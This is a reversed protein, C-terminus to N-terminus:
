SFPQECKTIIVTIDDRVNNSDTFQFLSDTLYAKIGDVDQDKCDRVAQELRNFGFVNEDNNTTETVGDTYLVLVDGQSLISKGNEYRAHPFSGLILGGTSLYEIDNNKRCILPPPHGANCYQFLGDRLRLVGYFLTAYRDSATADILMENARIMVDSPIMLPDTAYEHFATYLSAMTIAGPIGKGVVDGAAIGIYKDALTFIDYFDGGIERSPESIISMSLGVVRPITRPLLARQIEGALEMEEELRKSKKLIKDIAKEHNIMKLYIMSFNKTLVYCLDLDEQVLDIESFIITLVRYKSELFVPIICASKASSIESIKVFGLWTEQTLDSLIKTSQFQKGRIMDQIDDPSIKLPPDPQKHQDFVMENTTSNLIFSHYSVLHFMTHLTTGLFKSLSDRDNHTPFFTTAEVLDRWRNAHGTPRPIAIKREKIQAM